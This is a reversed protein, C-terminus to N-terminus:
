IATNGYETGALQPVYTAATDDISKIAGESIAIGILMATITKAMSHSLFRHRDTRAYQYHEFLITDDKAIL